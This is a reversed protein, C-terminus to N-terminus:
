VLLVVRLHDSPLGALSFASFTMTAVVFLTSLWFTPARSVKSWHSWKVAFFYLKVASRLRECGLM